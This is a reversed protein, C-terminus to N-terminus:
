KKIAAIIDDRIFLSLLEYGIAALAEKGGEERDVNTSMEKLTNEM